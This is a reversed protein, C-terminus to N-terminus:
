YLCIANTSSSRILIFTEFTRRCAKTVTLQLKLLFFVRIRVSFQLVEIPRAVRKKYFRYPQLGTFESVYNQILDPHDSELGDDLITVVIGKGTVGDQWAPIVNMDIGSGRHQFYLSFSLSILFPQYILPCRPM